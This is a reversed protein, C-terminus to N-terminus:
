TSLARVIVATLIGLSLVAAWLLAVLVWPRRTRRGEARIVITKAALDFARQRRATFLLFAADFPWIDFFFPIRRVIAAGPGAREGTEKAVVIGF